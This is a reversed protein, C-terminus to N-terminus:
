LSNIKNAFISYNCIANYNDCWSQHAKIRFLQQQEIPLSLYQEILKSVIGIDFDKDILFGNGVNVAEGTGGVNTAVVPIGASLAEMITVPIGEYESLNIFLDIYNESYYDLIQSNPVVGKFEFHFKGIRQEAMVELENRLFGDGFHVWKINQVNLRSIVEIILDVRKLIILNSCSAIIIQDFSKKEAIKRLNIKGLRSVEVKSSDINYTLFENKGADSIPYTKDLNQIIFKKMPLYKPYHREKFNDWGHARSIAKIKKKSKLISLAFAKQDHWYSYYVTSEKELSYTSIMVEIDNIISTAKIINAYMIKLALFWEKYSISTIIYFFEKVIPFLGIQFIIKLLHYHGRQNGYNIIQANIPILCNTSCNSPLAGSLIFIRNYNNSTVNLEDELYVEDILPYSDTLLVLNKKINESM